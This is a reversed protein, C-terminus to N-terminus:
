PTELVTNRPVMPISVCGLEIVYLTGALTWYCLRYRSRLELLFSYWPYRRPLLPPRYTPRAIKGGENAWHSSIRSIQVEQLDSPRDLSTIPYSWRKGVLWCTARWGVTHGTSSPWLQYCFTKVRLRRVVYIYTASHLDKVRLRSIDYIYPAGM